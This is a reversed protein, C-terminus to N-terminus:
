YDKTILRKFQYMSILQRDYAVYNNKYGLNEIQNLHILKKSSIAGILEVENSERHYRVSVYIDKPRSHLQEVLELTRIHFDETRTKVDIKYGNILFDYNDAEDYSTSDEIYRIGEKDLWSRFAKEGIKGEYMKKSANDAGGKHFDHRRSTFDHSLASYQYAELKMEDTVRIKVM